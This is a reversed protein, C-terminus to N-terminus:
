LPTFSFRHIIIEVEKEDSPSRGEFLWCNMFVPMPLTSISTGPTNFSHQEFLGTDNEQYGHLSKYVVNKETRTFRHTSYLSKMLFDSGYTDNRKEQKVAPWVTYNLIPFSDNGWRAFEIDMEDLGDKGSYNFLGLVVNKDLANLAGEVQWEYTGYGFKETTYVEGCSWKGDATKSIKLHLQGRTDVWVNKGNWYNPGPGQPTVPTKINWTYGSFRITQLPTVTQASITQEMFILFLLLRYKMYIFICNICVM